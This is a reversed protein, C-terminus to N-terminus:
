GAGGGEYWRTQPCRFFEGRQEIVDDETAIIKIAADGKDFFTRTDAGHQAADVWTAARSVGKKREAFAM